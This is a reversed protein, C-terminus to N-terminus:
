KLSNKDKDKTQSDRKFEEKWQKMEIRFEKLEKKLQEMELKIEVEGDYFKFYSDLKPIVKVVLSDNFEYLNRWNYSQLSDMMESQSEMLSDM